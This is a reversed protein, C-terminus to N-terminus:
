HLLLQLGHPICQLIIYENGIHIRLLKWTQSCPVLHLSQRSYHKELISFRHMSDFSKFRGILNNSLHSIVQLTRARVRLLVTAGLLVLM